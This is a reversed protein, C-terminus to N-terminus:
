FLYLITFMLTHRLKKVSINANLKDRDSKLDTMVQQRIHLLYEISIQALKFLKVVLNVDMNKQDFESEIHCCLINKINKEIIECDSSLKLQDMNVSAAM